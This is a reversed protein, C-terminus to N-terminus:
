NMNKPLFRESWEQRGRRQNDMEDLIKEIDRPSKKKRTKWYPLPTKSSM